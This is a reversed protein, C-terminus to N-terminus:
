QLGMQKAAGNAMAQRFFGEIVELNEPKGMFAVGSQPDIANMNVTVPALITLGGGGGQQFDSFDGGNIRNLRNVGLSKTVGENFVFEKKKLKALTEDGALGGTHLTLIKQTPLAGVQGGGHPRKGFLGGFIGSLFGGGGGGGLLSSTLFKIARDAALEALKRKIVGVVNVVLNQVNTWGQNMNLFFETFPGKMRNLVDRTNTELRTMEVIGKDTTEEFTKKTEEAGEKHIEVVEEETKKTAEVLLKQKALEKESEKEAIKFISDPTTTTTGLRDGGQQITTHRERRNRLVAQGKEAEAAAARKTGLPDVLFALATSGASSVKNVVAGIGRALKWMASALAIIRKTYVTTKTKILDKNIALWIKLSVNVKGLVKKLEDFAGGSAATRQIETIYSKFSATLGQWATMGEKAAGGFKDKMGTMLAEIVKDVEVNQKQLEEVTLGLTEKLIQRSNIGVESLQNLEEASVKGLAKMQGLARAIRPLADEGFITAVDVLTEMKEITPDLGFASMTAFADVAKKTDVPMDLAWKNIRELTETGKGDTLANLKIELQEFSAATELTSSALKGTVFVATAAVVATKMGLFSKRLTKLSKGIRDGKTKLKSFSDGLKGLARSSSAVGKTTINIEVNEAM